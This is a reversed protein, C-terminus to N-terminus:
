ARAARSRAPRAPGASERRRAPSELRVGIDLFDRAADVRVRARVVTARRSLALGFGPASAEDPRHSCLEYRQGPQVGFGLPARLRMGDRSVDVCECRVLTNDAGDVLWLAGGAPQRADARRESGSAGRASVELESAAYSM